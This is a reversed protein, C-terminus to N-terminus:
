STAVLLSRVRFHLRFTQCNNKQPKNTDSRVARPMEEMAVPQAVIAASAPLRRDPSRTSFVGERPRGPDSRPHVAQVDRGLRRPESVEIRLDLGLQVGRHGAKGVLLKVALRGFVLAGLPRLCVPLM